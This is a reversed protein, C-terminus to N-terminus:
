ENFSSHVQKYISVMKNVSDNWDYQKIIKARGNRGLETKLAENNLIKEIAEVIAYPDEKKVLFGTIGDEVVEPLGGVRSAVVPIGCASAEIASVGFSESDEISPICCVDLMNFYDPIKEQSIFGTFIVNDEIGLEKTLNELNEREFGEGTILLKFSRGPYKEILIKFSKILYIIGYKKELKKITGIVFDSNSFISKVKVPKFKEVDVGFPTIVIDKVCYKRTEEAMINSTSLIKDAKSLSYKVSLKHLLSYNPFSFIDSGWVSIILPHSFSLAGLLGFSSVYHAHVIDPKFKRIMKKIQILSTLYHIKKLSGENTNTFKKNLRLSYVSFRSLGYYLKDDYDQMGFLVIEFGQESLARIWKIIHVSSPDGLILIKM